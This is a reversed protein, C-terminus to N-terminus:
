KFLLGRIRNHKIKGYNGFVFDFIGICVALLRRKSGSKTGWEVWRFSRKLCSWFAKVRLTGSLHKRILLLNNRVYYYVWSPPRVWNSKASRGFSASCKHFVRAEPVYLIRYGSNKARLCWDTEEFLLFYDNSMLGIEKIVEAKILLACGTIYDAEAAEDFSGDDLRGGGRHSSGEIFDLVGGAFWIREPDHYFLIKPGVIGIDPNSEAAQILHTLANKDIVTDNNLLLIYESGRALADRIGVNNGESFGLNDENQLFVFAGRNSSFAEASGDTSGNDVLVIEYNDYSLKSLSNICELTDNKGNWNLVVVSVRPSTAFINM